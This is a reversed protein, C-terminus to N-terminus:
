NKGGGKQRNTFTGSARAYASQLHGSTCIRAPFLFDANKQTPCTTDMGRPSTPHPLSKSNCLGNLRQQMLIALTSVHSGHAVDRVHLRTLDCARLKSDIALLDRRNGPRPTRPRACLTM